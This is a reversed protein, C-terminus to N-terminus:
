VQFTFSAIGTGHTNAAPTFTLLGGTIDAASVFQGAVVAVGNDKLTGATPLTTIKVAALSNSPSDSSDSFGFDAASFTYATDELTTVTKNPGAPADNVSTVNLTITNPSQDLNVGGNATGGDDQVQFSFSAYGNGKANAAPTFKLRGANIDSLSIFQGATVAVGNDKLSGATPLTSIKVATLANAPSDNAASFGFDAATSAYATDELTTITKNTGTPAHNAHLNTVSVDSPNLKNYAADSSIAAATIITYAQPKAEGVLNVGTITVTQAKNWN